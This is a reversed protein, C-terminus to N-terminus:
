TRGAARVDRKSTVDAGNAGMVSHGSKVLKGPLQYRPQLGREARPLTHTERWSQTMM